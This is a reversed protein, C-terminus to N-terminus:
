RKFNKRGERGCYKRLRLHPLAKNKYVILHFGVVRHKSQIHTKKQKNTKKYYYYDRNHLFTEDTLLSSQM